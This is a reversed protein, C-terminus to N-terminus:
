NKTKSKITKKKPTTKITKSKSASKISRYNSLKEREDMNKVALRAAMLAVAAAFPALEVTGGKMMTGSSSCGCGGRRNGGKVVPQAQPAPQAPQAPPAQPAQPAPPPLTADNNLYKLLSNGTSLLDFSGGKKNKRGGTKQVESIMYNDNVNAYSSCGGKRNGGKIQKLADELLTYNDNVNAYSSCGGKKGGKIQKLADELLTYNDSVNAFSSCGGKKITKKVVVM